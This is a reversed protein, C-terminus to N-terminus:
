AYIETTNDAVGQPLSVAYSLALVEVLVLRYVKHIADVDVDGAHVDLAADIHQHIFQMAFPQEMAVVDDSDVAEAPDAGRLQEDLDLAEEVSLVATESVRRLANGFSREFALWVVLSLFYGLAVAVEDGNRILADGVRRSLVPQEREFRSFVEDLRQETLDEDNGLWTEVDDLAEGGVQAHAPVPRIAASRVWVGVFSANVPSCPM